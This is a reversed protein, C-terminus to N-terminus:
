AARTRYGALQEYSAFLDRFHDGMTRARGTAGARIAARPRPHRIFDGIARAADAPDGAAFLLGGSAEAHDAAGGRDPAILPLGSARAEAAVMSFTEADCGHILADASALLRALARRDSIPAVLQIHPNSGIERELRARDRGDGVLVLGLLDRAGAAAAARIVMPWRKEPSHRGVGLLLTANGPLGCRALLRRRLGEDRLGPTFVSDEIGMPNTVVNKMGHASLRRSLSASASVVADFGASTERFYTWAANLGRDITEVRAVPSLLRYGFAAIPDAHMILARPAAGKWERVIQATRFPSSAEVFDPQERDLLRHVAHHRPFYRYRRDVLLQPSALWEIRAAAGRRETRTRDGPAVIVIEHGLAPGLLLKQEIYTRVGGGAPAYFAAIDVIKV